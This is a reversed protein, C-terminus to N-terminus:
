GCQCADSFLYARMGQAVRKGCMQKFAPGVQTGNLLHETVFGNGGGLYVQVDVAGSQTFLYQHVVRAVIIMLLASFM